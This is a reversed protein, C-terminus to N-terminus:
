RIRERSDLFELSPEPHVACLISEKVAECDPFALIHILDQADKSLERLAINWVISLTEDYSFASRRFSAPLDDDETVAVGAHIRRQKFIELLDALQIRTYNAYGAVHVIAVPLGGVLGSIEKAIENDPDSDPM